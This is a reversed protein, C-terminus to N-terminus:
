RRPLPASHQVWTCGSANRFRRLLEDPARERAEHVRGCSGPIHHSFGPADRIRPVRAVQCALGSRTGLRRTGIQVLVFRIWTGRAGSLSYRRFRISTGEQPIANEPQSITIERHNTYISIPSEINPSNRVFRPSPYNCLQFRNPRSMKAMPTLANATVLIHIWRGVFHM